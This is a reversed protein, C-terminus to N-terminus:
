SDVEYILLVTFSSTDTVDTSDINSSAVNDGVRGVIADNNGSGRVRIVFQTYGAPLNVNTCNNVVSAQGASEIKSGYPLGAILCNGAMSIDKSTMVATGWALVVNGIRVYSGSQNSYSNSGAVTAGAVTPVWTGEEYDVAGAITRSVAKLGM